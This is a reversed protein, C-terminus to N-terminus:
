DRIACETGLPVVLAATSGGLSVTLIRGAQVQASDLTTDLTVVGDSVCVVHAPAITEIPEVDPGCASLALAILLCLCVWLAAGIIMVATAGTPNRFALNHENM